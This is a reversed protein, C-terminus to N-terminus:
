APAPIPPADLPYIREREPRQPPEVSQENPRIQNPHRPTRLSVAVALAGLSGALLFVGQAGLTALLLGGALLSVGIATNAVAEVAALTRGQIQAPSWRQVMLVVGINLFANGAGGVAFLLAVLVFFPLAGSLGLAGAAFAGGLILALRERRADTVRSAIRSGFIQGAGWAAVAIGFGVRGAGIHVFFPLEAVNVMGLALALLALSSTSLRLTPERILFQVGKLVGQHEADEVREVVFRGRLSGVVAASIVFSAANLLFATSAGFTAVLVGGLAAGLLMGTSSGASLLGNSWGRREEPVLMTILAGSAPSFPAEAAGALAALAVLLPLSHVTALAVFCAAAGMDSGVMVLRRDFYDGLSGAWPSVLVRAGLTAFLAASIWVGSGGSRAYILAILAIYAAQTGTLSVFRAFALRRVAVEPRTATLV